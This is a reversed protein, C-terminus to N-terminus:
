SSRELARQVAEKAGSLMSSGDGVLVASFDLALLSRVGERAAEMDAFMSPPLFSLQGAPRGILADGLVLLRLERHFLATEGPSKSHPVAVATFGCPLADGPSYVGDARLDVVSADASPLVIRAGFKERCAAASRGHHRNTVVITSPRGLRDIEADDGPGFPPPDVLMAEGARNAYIGNFDLGKDKSFWSWGYIGPVIERM